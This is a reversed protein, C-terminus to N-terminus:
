TIKYSKFCKNVTKEREGETQKELNCHLVDRLLPHGLPACNYTTMEGRHPKNQNGRRRRWRRGPTTITTTFPPHATTNVCSHGRMIELM